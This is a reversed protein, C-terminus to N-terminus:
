RKTTSMSGKGDDMKEQFADMKAELRATMEERGAEMETKIEVQLHAITQEMEM